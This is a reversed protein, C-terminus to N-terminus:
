SALPNRTWVPHDRGGAATYFLHDHMGVLGPIVTSGGLQMVRAGAPVRVRAAPGVDAIRNGRIVITQGARPASGTGDIITVNTLAVVSDGVAVFNRVQPTLTAASQASAVASLFLSAISLLRANHM